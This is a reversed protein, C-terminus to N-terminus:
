SHAARGVSSFHGSVAFISFIDSTAILPRTMEQTRRPLHVALGAPRLVALGAAGCDKRRGQAGADRGRGPRRVVAHRHLHVDHLRHRGSMRRRRADGLQEMQVSGLGSDYRFINFLSPDSITVGANALAFLPVILFNVWPGLAHEIRYSMDLTGHAVSELRQLCYRQGHNPFPEPYSEALQDLRAILRNRKHYYQAKNYLPASPILFAMVVGSMTAHIGSYYFLVWVLLTCLIYPFMRKEGLRRMIFVLAIVALALGLLGLDIEGGYFLIVVLIAILDDTVALATLFVKLSLPVRKGLMSIICVAFAIDTATPTMDRPFLFDLNGDDSFLHLQINTELISHYHHSTQPINALLMAVVVCIMLIVGLLWPKHWLKGNVLKFIGKNWTYLPPIIRM